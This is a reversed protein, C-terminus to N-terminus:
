LAHAYWPHREAAKNHGCGACVGTVCPPQPRLCREQPVELVASPAARVEPRLDPRRWAHHLPSKSLDTQQNISLFLIRQKM